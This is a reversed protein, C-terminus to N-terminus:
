FYLLISVPKDNLVGERVGMGQAARLNDPESLDWSSCSAHERTEGIYVFHMPKLSLNNDHASCQM